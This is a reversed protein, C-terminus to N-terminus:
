ALRDDNDRWLLFDIHNKDEPFYTNNHPCVRTQQVEEKIIVTYNPATFQKALWVKWNKGSLLMEHKVHDWATAPVKVTTTTKEVHQSKLLWARIGLLLHDSVPSIESWVTSMRLPMDRHEVALDRLVADSVAGSMGMFFKDFTVRESRFPDRNPYIPAAM